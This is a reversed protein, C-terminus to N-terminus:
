ARFYSLNRVASVKQPAAYLFDHVELDQSADMEQITQGDRLQFGKYGHEALLEASPSEREMEILIFDVCHSALGAEFGQLLEHEAREVDIKILRCGDLRQQTFFDDLTLTTVEIFQEPDQYLGHQVLSATGTNDANQSPYFKLTHESDKWLAHSSIQMRDSWNNTSLTKKLLARNDPDPEFSFVKGSAGVISAAKASFQGINAGADIFTDGTRLLGTLVPFAGPERFFYSRLGWADKIFVHLDYDGPRAKRVPRGELQSTMAYALSGLKFMKRATPRACLKHLLAELHKRGLVAALARTAAAAIRRQNTGQM